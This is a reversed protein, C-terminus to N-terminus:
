KPGRTGAGFRLPDSESCSANNFINPQGFLENPKKQLMKHFFGWFVKQGVWYRSTLLSQGPVPIQLKTFLGRLVPESGAQPEILALQYFNSNATVTLKIGHSNPQKKKKIIFFPNICACNLENM